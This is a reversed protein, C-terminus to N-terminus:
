CSTGQREDDCLWSIISYLAVALEDVAVPIASDIVDEFGDIGVETGGGGSGGGCSGGGGGGRVM